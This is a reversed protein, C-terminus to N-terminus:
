ETYTSKTVNTVIDSYDVIEDRTDDYSYRQPLLREIGHRPESFQVDITETIALSGNDKITMDVMYNDIVFSEAFTTGCLLTLCGILGLSM